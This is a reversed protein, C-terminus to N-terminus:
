HNKIKHQVESLCKKLVADIANFSNENRVESSVVFGDFVIHANIEFERKNIKKHTKMELELSQYERVNRIKEAYHGVMKRIVVMESGDLNFGSLTINGGLEQNM